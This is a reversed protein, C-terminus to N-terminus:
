TREGEIIERIMSNAEGKGTYDMLKKWQSQLDCLNDFPDFKPVADTRALEINKLAEEAGSRDGRGLYELSLLKCAKEIKEELDEKLFCGPYPDLEEPHIRIMGKKEKQNQIKAREYVFRYIDERLRMWVPHTKPPPLHKISFDNDLFFSFGFMRANILFDIDEGRPVHPDFPVQTFLNRHILMNGGFVFPTEKLRPQTGIIKDFGENMREFQDWFEMWPRFPKRIHYDGDSQLYYGAVADVTKGHARTGVFERAKSMFEPDEFVEDDDILLAADSSLVHPIFMCLNRVNSYGRSQLLEVFESRGQEILLDHIRRLQSPGFLLIEVGAAQSASAIIDAVKKEVQAAIDDTTPVALIALQFDHNRLINISEIARSLTGERDLPTPHDYVADGEKWGVETERGWYAPITMTIKM